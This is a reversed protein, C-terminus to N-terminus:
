GKAEALVADVTYAAGQRYFRINVTDGVEYGLLMGSLTDMDRVETGDVSLLIDGVELGAAALPSDGPLDAIYIGAPLRYYRQYFLSIYEGEFNLTPRGSVYGQTILQNVIEQVTASPIAFGLGEVTASTFSGSMKMTNIGIVQGYCNILPGGSNGNNLAANTQILTMTRNGVTINRNIASIIGDTMTGRLSIGLPDGIAVVADGVQLANSDGFQAPSLGEADIKLVALDTVTDAGVIKAPYTNEDSLIVSVSRADEIVHCNTAIYGDESLVVGSGSGSSTSISAVSDITTKYIEQLSLGGEQPINAVSLSSSELEMRFDGDEAQKVPAEAILAPETPVSEDVSVVTPQSPLRNKEQPSIKHLTGSIGIIVLAVALLVAFTGSHSKPPTTSGTEYRDMDWPQHNDM